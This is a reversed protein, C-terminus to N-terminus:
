TALHGHHLFAVTLRHGFLLLINKTVQSEAKAGALFLGAPVFLFQAPVILMVVTRKM